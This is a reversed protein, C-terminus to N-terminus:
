RYRVEQIQSVYTPFAENWFPWDHGAGRRVDLHHHIGKAALIGSLRYNDQLCSDHEGSGLIIGMSRINDLSWQDNLGPLYDPPNNYYANDDYYGMIFQKIDFAGGMTILASVKDPHRFAINAAHYAGFSCGAVGVKGAGNERMALEMVDNVIVNEYGQHTKIRDAPHIGYNYWSMEDIGDPCYVRLRGSDVLHSVAGVLGFDKNQYYRGKSTPFIILPYGSHGYVLM